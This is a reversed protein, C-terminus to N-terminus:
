DAHTVQAMWKEHHCYPIDLAPRLYGIPSLLAYAYEPHKRMLKWEEDTLAGPKLLIADPVGMKGMDHLLAGRRVHVWEAEDLGMTRALRLTLEVVRQTHGETEKDRLDLARSWGELTTDYSLILESNARQLNSFLEANDIAIATQRALMELFDLWEQDPNLPTRHFIELVGKVEGKAILPAGFYAIFDDGATVHAQTLPHEAEKLNPISVLRRELAAKGAYNEGLRLSSRNISHGRFGRGAGFELSNLRPNLLLVAAADARLLMTVQELIIDLTIRLDFSSSIAMDITHLASLRQLQREIMEQAHRHETIDRVIMSTKDAGDSDQFVATSIECPFQSGDKRILTLEGRFKGTRAREELGASLRPDTADVVGARGIQRLEEETRGFVRCAEPNASFIMGDPATLLLADLSNEFVSRFRAESERLAAESRAREEELRKKELAARITHPLRQIHKPSKIVYDAAGRKMAEVAVEESGTGTVIVVPMRPNKAHVAEVVQLGEFGLINFDSLVLDYNGEALRAELDARSTAEIVQFGSHEKELADRVLERDLPYDDVYLIRIPDSM